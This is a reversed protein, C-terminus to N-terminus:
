RRGDYWTLCDERSKLPRGWLLVTKSLFRLHEWPTYLHMKRASTVLPHRHLIAICKGRQRAMEKFRIFLDVEESAYLEHSFGGTERFVAAECFIFSGAAWKKIRSLLNWGTAALRAVPYNGDLRMTSGGALCGGTQIAEAVDAFLEASPHSDADVFILWDGSAGAAGTNRARGIQNVPEFVVKAGAERALEATRDTSNNDCVVVEFEWGLKSFASAAARICHLTAALLKEENFAPVIASIKVAIKRGNLGSLSV